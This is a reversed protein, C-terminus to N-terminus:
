PMKAQHLLRRPTDGAQARKLGAEADLAEQRGRGELHGLVAVADGLAEAEGANGFARALAGFNIERECL